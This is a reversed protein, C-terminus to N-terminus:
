FAKHKFPFPFLSRDLNGLVLIAGSVAGSAAILVGYDILGIDFSREFAYVQFIETGALLGTATGVPLFFVRFFESADGDGIQLSANTFNASGSSLRVSLFFSVPFFYFFLYALQAVAIKRTGFGVVGDSTLELVHAQQRGNVYLKEVGNKYTAVVHSKEFPSIKDTSKLALPIGNRGSVPTRLRFEIESGEQGLTFNRAGTNRSFSVIRAPGGQETNEPTIWAEISLEHTAQLAEFLKTPPQSSRVISPKIIEIGNSSDLWRVRGKPSFSLDLGPELGSVDRVINGTGENFAFLVVLNETSRRTLFSAGQRFYAAVEDATLARSYLAVLHISGLWPKNYTAENGIQFTFHPDWTGFPAVLQTVSVILPVTGLLLALFCIIGRREVEQWCRFVLGSFRGLCERCLVVGAAAGLTNSLVDFGSPQRTFWVQLVEIALSGLAGAVTALLIVFTKGRSPTCLCYFLAGFPIFLLVNVIFDAAGFRAFSQALASALSHSPDRSLEFPYLTAIFIYTLYILAVTIIKRRDM